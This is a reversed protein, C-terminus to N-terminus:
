IKRFFELFIEFFYKRLVSLIIYTMFVCYLFRKITNCRGKCKCLKCGKDNSEYGLDCILKCDRFDPCNRCRCRPCGSPRRIKLGYACKIDCRRLLKCGPPTNIVEIGHLTDTYPPSFYSSSYDEDVTNGDDVDSPIHIITEITDEYVDDEEHHPPPQFVIEVTPPLNSTSPIQTTSSLLEVKQPTTTSLSESQSQQTTKTTTTTTQPADMASVCACLAIGKDDLEFGHPCELM